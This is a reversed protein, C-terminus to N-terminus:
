ESGNDRLFQSKTWDLNAEFKVEIDPMIVCLCVRGDVKSQRIAMELDDRSMPRSYAYNGNEGVVRYTWLHVDKEEVYVDELVEENKKKAM